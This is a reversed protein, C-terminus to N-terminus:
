KTDSTDRFRPHKERRSRYSITKPTVIDIARSFHLFFFFTTRSLKNQYLAKTWHFRFNSLKRIPETKLKSKCKGRSKIKIMMGQSCATVRMQCENSYTRGDTGCVPNYDATCIRPCSCQREGSVSISCRAYPDPCPKLDCVNLASFLILM